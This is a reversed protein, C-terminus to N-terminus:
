VNIRMPLNIRSNAKFIINTTGIKTIDVILFGLIEESEIKQLLEKDTTENFEKWYYGCLPFKELMGAPYLSNIDTKRTTIFYIDTQFVEKFSDHM